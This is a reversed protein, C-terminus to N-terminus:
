RLSDLLEDLQASIQAVDVASVVDYESAKLLDTRVAALSKIALPLTKAQMRTDEEAQSLEYDRTRDVAARVSRKLSDLSRQAATGGSGLSDDPLTWRRVLVDLQRMQQYTSQRAM